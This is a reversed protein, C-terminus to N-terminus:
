SGSANPRYPSQMSFGQRREAARKKEDAENTAQQQKTLHSYFFEEKAVDVQVTLQATQEDYNERLYDAVIQHFREGFEWFFLTGGEPKEGSLSLHAGPASVDLRGRHCNADRLRQHLLQNLFLQAASFPLM